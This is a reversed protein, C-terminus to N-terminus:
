RNDVSNYDSCGKAMVEVPVVSPAHFSCFTSVHRVGFIDSYRTRAFIAIYTKGDRLDEVDTKSLIIQETGLNDSSKMKLLEAPVAFPEHPFVIGSTGIDRAKGAKYSLSPEEKVSLKEVVIETAINRASTKGINEFHLQTIFPQNETFTMTPDLSTKIWARQDERMQKNTANVSDEAAKAQRQASDSQKILANLQGQTQVASLAGAVSSSISQDAMIRTQEFAIRMQMWVFGAGLIAAILAFIAVHLTSRAIVLSQEEFPKLEDSNEALNVNGVVRVAIEHPDDPSTNSKAQQAQTNQQDVAPASEQAAPEGINGSTQPGAQKGEETNQNESL